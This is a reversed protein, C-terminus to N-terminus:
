VYMKMRFKWTHIPSIDIKMKLQECEVHMWICPYLKCYHTHYGWDLWNRVFYFNYESCVLAMM